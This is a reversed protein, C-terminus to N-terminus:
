EPKACFVYGYTNKCDTNLGRIVAVALIAVVVIVVTVQFRYFLDKIFKM